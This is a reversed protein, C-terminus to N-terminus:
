DAPTSGLRGYARLQPSYRAVIAVVLLTGLGGSVVSITPSFLAAVAGSEFAGLENSTGIFLSNIASVRGRMEDPTLLQVLTHRIVVSVMDLMGTLFLMAISLTYSRSVGFVVTATGFGAVSWLLVQGSREIPPRHALIFSMALAGLGPAARLWGYGTPGVNLIEAYIPLLMDAGGLLVAFMDLTIAGFVVPTALLFAFGAGLSALTLKQPLRAATQCHVGMLMMFYVGAAAANVLYVYAAGGVLAIMWGGMAPGVIVAMQFASSNWTVANSFRERPVILPMMSSRAPQMFARAAGIIFLMVYMWNVPAQTLSIAMLGLSCGVIVLQTMMIIRKRDYRDAAHGAPLVLAVVPLIQSLGVWALHWASSTRAYIEWGIAATQMQMGINAILGGTLFLRYDRVRLASYPDHRIQSHASNAGDDDNDDQM